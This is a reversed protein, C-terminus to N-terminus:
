LERSFVLQHHDAATANTFRTERDLQDLAVEEVLIVRCDLTRVCKGGREQLKCSSRDALMETDRESEYRFCHVISM